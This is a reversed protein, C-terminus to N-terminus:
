IHHSERGLILLVDTIIIRTISCMLNLSLAFHICKRTLFKASNKLAYLKKYSLEIILLIKKLHILHLILIM